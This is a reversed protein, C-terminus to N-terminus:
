HGGFSRIEGNAQSSFSLSDHVNTVTSFCRFAQPRLNKNGNIGVVDTVKPMVIFM